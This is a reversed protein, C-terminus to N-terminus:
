VCESRTVFEREAARYHWEFIPKEDAREPWAQRLTVRWFCDSPLGKDVTWLLALDGVRLGYDEVRPGNL